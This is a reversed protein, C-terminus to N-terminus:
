RRWSQTEVSIKYVKKKDRKKRFKEIRSQEFTGVTRLLANSVAGRVYFPSYEDFIKVHMLADANDDDGDDSDAIDLRYSLGEDISDLKAYFFYYKKHKKIM